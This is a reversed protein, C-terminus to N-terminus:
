PLTASVFTERNAGARLMQQPRLIQSRRSFGNLCLFHKQNRGSVNQARLLHKGTQEGLFVDHSIIYHTRLFLADENAVSKM